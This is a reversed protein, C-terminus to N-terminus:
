RRSVGVVPPSATMRTADARFRAAHGALYSLRCAQAATQRQGDPHGRAPEAAPSERTEALKEILQRIEAVALPVDALGAPQDQGGEFKRVALQRRGLLAEEPVETDARAGVDGEFGCHHQSTGGLIFGGAAEAREQLVMQQFLRGPVPESEV